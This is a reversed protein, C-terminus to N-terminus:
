KDVVNKVKWGIGFGVTDSRKINETLRRFTARRFGRLPGYPDWAIMPDDAAISKRDLSGAVEGEYSRARGRELHGAFKWGSTIPVPDARRHLRRESCYVEM